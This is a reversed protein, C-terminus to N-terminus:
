ISLQLNHQESIFVQVNWSSHVTYIDWQLNYLLISTPLSLWDCPQNWSWVMLGLFFLFTYFQFCTTRVFQVSCNPTPTWGDTSEWSRDFTYIPRTCKASGPSMLFVILTKKPLVKAPTRTRSFIGGGLKMRRGRCTAHNPSPQQLKICIYCKGFYM